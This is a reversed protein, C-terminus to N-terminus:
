RVGPRASAVGADFEVPLSRLGRFNLSPLWDVADTALRLGPLQTTLARLTLRSELRALGAGICFHPGHGFAVHRPGARTIDLAHPDTFVAPDRNAAGGVLLVAQGAAMEHGGLEMDELPRRLMLQVASDYRLLEEVASDILEPRETLLRLQEPHRLLNLMASGLFHTTTEHGGILLIVCNALLEDESLEEGAARARVFGALPTDADRAAHEAILGRFYDLMRDMSASGAANEAATLRSNGIVHAVENSWATLQARDAHPVQLQDCIVAIPLPVALDAVIDLQGTPRARDIIADITGAIQQELRALTRATFAKAVLRRLRPHDPADSYLMQRGLVVALPKLEAPVKDIDPYRVSSLRPDGAAQSVEAYGTVVWARLTRDWYCPGEARLQDYFEHLRRNVEPRLVSLLSPTVM